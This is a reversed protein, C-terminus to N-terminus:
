MRMTHHIEEAVPQYDLGVPFPHNMGKPYDPHIGFQGYYDEIDKQINEKNESSSEFEFVKSKVRLRATDAKIAIMPQRSLFADALDKWRTTKSTKWNIIKGDLLLANAYLKYPGWVKPAEKQLKLAINCIEDGLVRFPLFFRDHECAEKISEHSLETNDIYGAVMKDYDYFIVGGNYSVATIRSESGFIIARMKLKKVFV